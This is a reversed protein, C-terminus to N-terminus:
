GMLRPLHSRFRDAAGHWDMPTTTRIPIPRSSMEDIVGAVDNLYEMRERPKQRRLWALVFAILLEEM